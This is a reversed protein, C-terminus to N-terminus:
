IIPPASWEDTSLIELIESHSHKPKGKLFDPTKGEFKVFTKTGALNQRLTNESSEIVQNFDISAVDTTNIIVYTRNNM